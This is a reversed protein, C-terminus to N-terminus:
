LGLNELFCQTYESFKLQTLKNSMKSFIENLVSLYM